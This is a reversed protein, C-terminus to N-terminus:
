AIQESQRKQIQYLSLLASSQYWAWFASLFIGLLGDKYGKLTIFSRKFERYPALMVDKLKTRVGLNFKDIGENVLYRRHKRIFIKFSNMWYHHLINSGSPNLPLDYAAFGPKLKRGYHVVPDFSFRHKNVLFFKQNKGGWVTGKLKTKKFYFQWPVRVGGINVDAAISRFNRLLEDILTKDAVEDPDIFIVWDNKTYNVVETQIMECSPVPKRHYIHHAYQQAIELSNDTSGLDTYHIDDSFNISNFCAPLLKEENFGVIMVSVPYLVTDNVEAM